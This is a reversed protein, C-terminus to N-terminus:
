CSTSLRKVVEGEEQHMTNKVQMLQSCHIRVTYLPFNCTNPDALTKPLGILKKRVRFEPIQSKTEAGVRLTCWTWLVNKSGMPNHHNHGEHMALRTPIAGPTQLQQMTLVWCNWMEFWIKITSGWHRLIIHFHFKWPITQTAISKKRYLIQLNTRTWTCELTPM